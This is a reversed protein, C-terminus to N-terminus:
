LDKYSEYKEKKKRVTSNCLQIHKDIHRITLKIRNMTSSRTVADIDGDSLTFQIVTFLASHPLLRSLWTWGSDDPIDKASELLDEYCGKATKYCRIANAYDKGLYYRNGAKIMKKGESAKPSLIRKFGQGVVKFEEVVGYDQMFLEGYSPM